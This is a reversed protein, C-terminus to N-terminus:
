LGTVAALWRETFAAADVATVLQVPRGGPREELTLWGDADVELAMTRPEVTTCDWRLAAAVAVPDYQFNLLDDPLRDHQAALQRMHEAAGHAAGQLAVLKSVPGGENLWPLHSSRLHVDLCLHLPVVTPNSAGFVIRAAARDSQINWDMEPGWQPLGAAARQVYGGMLVLDTRALTGPRSAELLALNTLPGIAVVTAGDAISAALLDLAAGPAGPLPDLDPWFEPGQLGPQQPYGGISGEAGAAITVQRGSLDVVYAAMGARRGGQECCTTIAILEADAAGLALALACVDDADGGIDTDLHIRRRTM